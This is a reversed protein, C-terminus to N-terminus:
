CGALRRLWEMVVSRDGPGIIGFNELDNLMEEFDDAKHLQATEETVELVYGDLYIFECYEGNRLTVSISPPALEDLATRILCHDCGSYVRGEDLSLSPSTNVCLEGCSDILREANSLIYRELEEPRVAM